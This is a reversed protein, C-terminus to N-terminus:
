KGAALIEPILPNVDLRFGTKPDDNEILARLDLLRARAENSRKSDPKALEEFDAPQLQYRLTESARRIALAVHEPMLIPAGSSLAVKASSATLQLLQRPLGGSMDLLRNILSEYISDYPKNSMLAALGIVAESLSMVVGRKVALEKLQERSMARLRVVNGSFRDSVEHFYAEFSMRMPATIVAAFPLDELHRGEKEFLELTESRSLKELGDWIVM